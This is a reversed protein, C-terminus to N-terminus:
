KSNSGGGPHSMQGPGTPAPAVGREHSLRHHRHKKASADTVGALAATLVLVGLLISNRGRM